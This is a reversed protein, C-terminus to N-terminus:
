LLILFIKMHIEDERFTRLLSRVYADIKARKLSPMRSFGLMGAVGQAFFRDLIDFIKRYVGFPENSIQPSMQSM